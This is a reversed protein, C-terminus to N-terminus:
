NTQLVAGALCLRNGLGHCIHKYLLGASILAKFLRNLYTTQTSKLYLLMLKSITNQEMNTNNNKGFSIILEFCERSHAKQISADEVCNKYFFLNYIM